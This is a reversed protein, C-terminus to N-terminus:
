RRPSGSAGPIATPLPDLTDGPKVRLLVNRQTGNSPCWLNKCLGWFFFQAHAVWPNTSFFELIYCSLILIQLASLLHLVLVSQHKRMKIHKNKSTESSKLMVGSRLPLKVGSNQVESYSTVAPAPCM